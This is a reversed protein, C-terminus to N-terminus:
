TLVSAGAIAVQADQSSHMGSVGIGGVVKGGQLLPVGGELPCMGEMALIRWGTGGAAVADEFVKTPKKFKAATEAKAQAIRVSGLQTNDLKQFLVLHGSCDVIAIALPWRNASAEAAAAQMVQKAAALTIPMGYELPAPTPTASM